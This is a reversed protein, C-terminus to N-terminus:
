LVFGQRVSHIFDTYPPTHGERRLEFAMQGRHYAGHIVVHMLIDGTTSTWPEGKSSTYSVKDALREETLGSVFQQWGRALEEFAPSWQSAALDPWVVVKERDRNLRSLWLRGAGLIHGLLRVITAPPPNLSSLARVFERNGWEDYALLRKIQELDGM